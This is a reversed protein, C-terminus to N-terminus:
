RLWAEILAALVAAVIAVVGGTKAWKWRVCQARWDELVAVRGKLGDNANGHIERDHRTVTKQLALCTTRIEGVTVAVQGIREGLSEATSDLKRGLQDLQDFIRREMEPAM